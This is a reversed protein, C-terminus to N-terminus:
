NDFRILGFYHCCKNSFQFRGTVSEKNKPCSCNSPGDSFLVCVYIDVIKDIFLM